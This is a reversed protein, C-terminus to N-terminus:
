ILKLKVGSDLALIPASKSSSVIFILHFNNCRFNTKGECQRIVQIQSGNNATLKLKTELEPKQKLTKYISEHMVNVPAGSDIKYIVDTGNTELKVTWDNNVGISYM